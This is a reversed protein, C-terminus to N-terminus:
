KRHTPPDSHNALARGCSSPPVQPQSRSDPSGALLHSSDAPLPHSHVSAVGVSGSLEPLCRTHIDRDLWLTSPCTKTRHCFAATGPPTSLPSHPININSPHTDFLGPSHKTLSRISSLSATSAGEDDTTRTGPMTSIYM